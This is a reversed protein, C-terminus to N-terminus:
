SKDVVSDVFSHAHAVAEEPDAKFRMLHGQVAAMSVGREPFRECFRRAIRELAETGVHCGVAASESETLAAGVGVVDASSELTTADSSIPKTYFQIFLQKIQARTAKDLLVKVDVRGPRILAPDLKEIHNTTMILIRGEQAAVGDIANLLGSFTVNTVITGSATSNNNNSAAAAPNAGSRSVFAADIDELLLICRPPTDVMLETLTEDTLGKNALSIVYINLKLEGALATVFSTKGTGPYGYFMYGRRYPIGRDGYWKENKMFELADNLVNKKTEGDLVITSLPRIPRSRTRRWNGYQDASYIVTRKLDREAFLKRSDEVLDELAMRASSKDMTKVVTAVTGSASSLKLSNSRMSGRFLNGLTSVTIKEGAVAGTSTTSSSGMPSPKPRSRTIWMFRGKYWFFHTSNPAPLFQYSPLHSFEDDVASTSTSTSSRAVSAVAFRTSQSAFKQDACWALIWAFVDDRADAECAVILRRKLFTVAHGGILRVIAAAIGIAGLTLGSQTFPNATPPPLGFIRAVTDAISLLGTHSERPISSISEISESLSQSAPQETMRNSTNFSRISAVGLTPSGKSFMLLRPRLHLIRRQIM